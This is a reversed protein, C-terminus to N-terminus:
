RTSRSAIASASISTLSRAAVIVGIDSVVGSKSLAAAYATSSRMVDRRVGVGLAAVRAANDMQDAGMPLVLLPVGCALAGVVSGSGGHCVVVDAEPLVETQAVFEEVRVNAPQPGVAAPVEGSILREISIM